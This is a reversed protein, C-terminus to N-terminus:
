VTVKKSDPSGEPVDHDTVKLPAASDEVVFVIAKVSGLPVYVKLRDAGEPYVTEGDDPASTTWPLSITWSIAKATGFM